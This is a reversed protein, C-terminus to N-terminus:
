EVKGNSSLPIWVCKWDIVGTSAAGFTVKIYGGSITHIRNSILQGAVVGVGTVGLMADTVVGTIGLASGVAFANIDLTACLDYVTLADCLASLKVTTAQSQIATTVIGTLSLIEVDGTITFINGTAFPSTSQYTVYKKGPMIRNDLFDPMLVYRVLGTAATFPSDSLINFVGGTDFVDVKRAQFACAGELPILLFGDFYHDGELRNSDIPVTASSTTFTGAVLLNSMKSRIYAIDAGNFPTSDSLIDSLAFPSAIQPNFGQPINGM